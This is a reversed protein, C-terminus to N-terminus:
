MTRKGVAPIVTCKESLDLDALRFRRKLWKAYALLCHVKENRCMGEAGTRIWSNIKKVTTILSPRERKQIMEREKTTYM